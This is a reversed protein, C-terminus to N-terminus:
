SRVYEIAVLIPFLVTSVLLGYCFAYFLGYYILDITKCAFGYVRTGVLSPFYSSIFNSPTAQEEFLKVLSFYFTTVLIALIAPTVLLPM